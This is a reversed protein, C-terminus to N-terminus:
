DKLSSTSRLELHHLPEARQAAVRISNYPCCILSQPETAMATAYGICFPGEQAAERPPELPGQLKGLSDPM